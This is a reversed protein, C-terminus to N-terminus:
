GRRVVTWAAWSGILALLAFEGIALLQRTSEQAQTEDGIDGSDFPSIGTLMFLVYVASTAVGCTAAALLVTHERGWRPRPPRALAKVPESELRGLTGELLALRTESSLALSFQESSKDPDM